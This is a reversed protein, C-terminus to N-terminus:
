PTVAEARMADLCLSAADMWAWTEVTARWITEVDARAIRYVGPVDTNM